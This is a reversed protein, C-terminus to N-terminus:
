QFVFSHISLKYSLDWFCCIFFFCPVPQSFSVQFNFCLWITHQALVPLELLSHSVCSLYFLELWWNASHTVLVAFCYRMTLLHSFNACFSYLILCLLTAPITWQFTHPFYLRFLLSFHYSCAGMNNFILFHLSQPINHDLVVCLDLCSFGINNCHILILSTTGYNINSFRSLYSQFFFSFVSLCWSSLLSILLVHFMLLMLTMGTTAPASPLMDFFSFFHM